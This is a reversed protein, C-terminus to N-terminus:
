PFIPIEWHGINLTVYVPKKPMIFTWIPNFITIGNNPIAIASEQVYTGSEEDWVGQDPIVDPSFFGCYLTDEEGINKIEVYVRMEDGNVAEPNMPIFDGFPGGPAYEYHMGTTDNWVHLTTLDAIGEVM